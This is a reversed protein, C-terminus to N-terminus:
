WWWTVSAAWSAVPRALVLGVEWRGKHQGEHHQVPAESLDARAGGKLVSCFNGPSRSAQGEWLSPNLGVLEAAVGGAARKENIRFM